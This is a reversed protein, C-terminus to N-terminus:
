WLIILLNFILGNTALVSQKRKGSFAANNYQPLTCNTIGLKDAFTKQKKSVLSSILTMKSTNTGSDSSIKTKLQPSNTTSYYVSDSKLSITSSSYSCTYNNDTKKLNCIVGSNNIQKEARTVKNAKLPKKLKKSVNESKNKNSSSMLFKMKNENKSCKIPKLKINHLSTNAIQLVVNSAVNAFTDNKKANVQMAANHHNQQQHQKQQYNNTIKNNNKTLLSNKIFLDNLPNFVIQKENSSEFKNNFHLSPNININCNM